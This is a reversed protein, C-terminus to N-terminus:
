PEKRYLAFSQGAMAVQREGRVTAPLPSGPGNWDHGASDLLKRWSGAAPFPFRAERSFNFLSLLREDGSWREMFLLRETELARVALNKRELLALAPRERRLSILTRCLALLTRHRGRGRLDWALRSRAFTERAAPDPPKGRYGAAEFEERRGRRVAAVLDPDSHDIFYLFPATEGYEEGMFLLPVCPSLFLVGAAVKLAEFSVLTALREGHMRNGTQDHNQACVVFQHAPRLRSSSGHRRRRYASYTGDYVFGERVAKALHTVGGFDRYYGEQEGALLTHLSHHFDDSWQADLNYGGQRHPKLLRVDNLDSEAIVHIRRGLMRARRHVAVTLEDLIHRAGFDFIGHVADLRLADAHYETVWYLANSVIFHRVPDSEPGDYNIADGWPTRYRDTHYHGFCGTYNGEPGLHNYVVDLIVAMGRCHCADILEKLGHPGGYGNHPAFPYVGDYGWNRKGPFQAVPMLEVATVGLERLADLRTITAEFTGEPTFAGVHLEYIVYEDLPIGQWGADAWQFRAPDVVQSPGHVGVPQFRSAPDPRLTEEDLLYLYRSGEGVGDLTGSFYGNTERELPVSRPIPGDLINVALRQVKPAWVRFRVRGADLTVAGLNVRFMGSNSAM